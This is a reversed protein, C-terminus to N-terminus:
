RRTSGLFFSANRLAIRGGAATITEDNQNASQNLGAGSPRLFFQYEGNKENKQRYFL